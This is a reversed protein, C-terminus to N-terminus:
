RMRLKYVGSFDIDAGTVIGIIDGQNLYMTPPINISNDLVTKAMEATASRTNETYDTNRDKGPASDALGSAFDQVTGLLLTNGIREGWHNDIWGTIGNEGLQGVAQSSLMPIVLAGPEPTRLETWAIFMRGQGHKLTGTRYIGRAITGAPILRVNNNASYVDESIMCTIRGAVDSVFRQMMSCPIHRDVPIYLNPDLNLRRVGTVRAIGDDNRDDSSDPTDPCSLKGNADKTLVKKCRALATKDVQGADSTTAPSSRSEATAVRQSGSGQQSSAAGSLASAKDFTVPPPAEAQSNDAAAKASGAKGSDSDASSDSIAALPNFDRGLNQRERTSATANSKPAGDQKKDTKDGKLKSLLYDGGSAILILLILSVIAVILSRRSKPKAHQVVKPQGAPIKDARKEGALEAKARERAEAELEAGTKIEEQEEM